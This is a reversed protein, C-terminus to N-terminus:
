QHAQNSPNGIRGVPDTAWAALLLAATEVRLVRPGLGAVQWSHKRARVVEEETFGGEPGVALVIDSQPLEKAPPAGVHAMIKCAPLTSQACYDAWASVPAIHM